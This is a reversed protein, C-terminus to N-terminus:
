SVAWQLKTSEKLNFKLLKTNECQEDEPVWYYNILKEQMKCSM